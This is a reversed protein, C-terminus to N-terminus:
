PNGITKTFVSKCRFWENAILRSLHVIFSAVDGLLEIAFALKGQDRIIGEIASLGHGVADVAHSSKAKSAGLPVFVSSPIQRLDAIAVDGNCTANAELRHNWGAGM